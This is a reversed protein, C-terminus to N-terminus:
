HTHGHGGTPDSGSIVVAFIIVAIVIVGIGVLIKPDKLKKM